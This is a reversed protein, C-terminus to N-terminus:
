ILKQLMSVSSELWYWMTVYNLKGCFLVYRMLTLVGITVVKTYNSEPYMGTSETLYHTLLPLYASVVM